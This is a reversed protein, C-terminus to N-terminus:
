AGERLHTAHFTSADKFAEQLRKIYAAQHPGSVLWVRKFLFSCSAISAQAMERHAYEAPNM